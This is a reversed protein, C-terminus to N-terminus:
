NQTLHTFETLRCQLNNNDLWVQLFWLQKNMSTIIEKQVPTITDATVKLPAYLNKLTHAPICITCLVHM